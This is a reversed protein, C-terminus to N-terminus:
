ASTSGALSSDASVGQQDHFLLSIMDNPESLVHLKRWWKIVYKCSLGLQIATLLIDRYIEGRTHRTSWYGGFLHARGFEGRTGQGLASM